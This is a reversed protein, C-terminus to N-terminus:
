VNQYKDCVRDYAEDIFDPISKNEIDIDANERLFKRFDNGTLGGIYQRNYGTIQSLMNLMEPIRSDQPNEIM